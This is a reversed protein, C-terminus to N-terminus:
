GFFGVFVSGLYLLQETEALYCGSQLFEFVNLHLKVLLFKFSEHGIIDYLCYVFHLYLCHWSSLVLFEFGSYEVRHVFM